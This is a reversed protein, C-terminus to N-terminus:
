PIKLIQDARLQRPDSLGNAKLLDQWDVNHRRAISYATDGRQVKYIRIAAPPSAKPKTGADGSTSDTVPPPLDLGISGSSDIKPSTTKPPTELVKVKGPVIPKPKPKSEDIVKPRIPGASEQLSSGSARNDPITLWQGTFLPTGPKLSNLQEVEAVSAQFQRVIEVLTEGEGVRYRKHGPMEPHDVVMPTGTTRRPALLDEVDLKSRPKSPAPMSGGPAVVASAAEAAPADPNLWKYAAFGGIAVAHLILFVFIVRGFGPGKETEMSFPDDRSIAAALRTPPASRRSKAKM